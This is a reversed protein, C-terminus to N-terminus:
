NGPLVLGVMVGWTADGDIITVSPALKVKENFFFTVGGGFVVEDIDADLSDGAEDEIKATGTMYGLNAEPFITLTPSSELRVYVSVAGTLAKSTADWNLMDLEDSSYSDMEYGVTLEAGLKSEAKPRVLGLAFWPTVATASGDNGFVNDDLSLRSVSLGIDWSGKVTYNATGGFGTFSDGSLFGAGLGFGSAGDPLFKMQANAAAASLMFVLLLMVVIVPKKM